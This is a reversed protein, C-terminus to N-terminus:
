KQQITLAFGGYYGNHENHTVMTFTGLSTDILLFQQEHCSDGTELDPGDVIEAKIFKAGVFDNLEDDTMMYRHECCSQGNDYFKIGTDDTFNMHLEENHMFLESITKGISANYANVTEENSSLNHLMVGLGMRTMINGKKLTPPAM